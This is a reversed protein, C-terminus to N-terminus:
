GRVLDLRQFLGVVVDAEEIMTAFPRPGIEFIAAQRPQIPLAAQPFCLIEGVAARGDASQSGSVSHRCPRSWDEPHGDDALMEGGLTKAQVVIELVLVRDDAIKWDYRHEVAVAAVRLLSSGIARDPAFVADSNRTKVSGSCPESAVWM